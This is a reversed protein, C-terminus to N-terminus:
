KYKKDGVPNNERNVKAIDITAGSPSTQIPKSAAQRPAGKTTTVPGSKSQFLGGRSHVDVGLVTAVDAGPLDAQEGRAARDLAQNKRIAKQTDLHDKIMRNMLGMTTTHSVGAPAGKGISVLQRGRNRAPKADKTGDANTVAVLDRGTNKKTKM